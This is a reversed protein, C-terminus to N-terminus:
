TTWEWIIAQNKGFEVVTSNPKWMNWSKLIAITLIAVVAIAFILSMAIPIIVLMLALVMVFIVGIVFGIIAGVILGIIAGGFGGFNFGYIACIVSCVFVSISIPISAVPTEFIDEM